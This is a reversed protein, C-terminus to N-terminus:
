DQSPATEATGRVQPREDRHLLDMFKWLEDERVHLYSGRDAEGARLEKDPSPLGDFCSARTEEDMLATGRREHTAVRQVSLQM